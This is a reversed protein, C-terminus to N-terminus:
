LCVPRHALRKRVPEAIVFEYFIRHLIDSPRLLDSDTRKYLLCRDAQSSIDVGHLIHCVPRPHLDNRRGPEEMCLILPQISSTCAADESIQHYIDFLPDLPRIYMRSQDLARRIGRSHGLDVLPKKLYMRVRCSSASKRDSCMRIIPVPAPDCLHLNEFFESQIGPLDQDSMATIRIIDSIKLLKQAVPATDSQVPKSIIGLIRKLVPHICKHLKTVPPIHVLQHYRMIIYAKHIDSVKLPAIHSPGIRIVCM